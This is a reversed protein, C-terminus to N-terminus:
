NEGESTSPLDFGQSRVKKKVDALVKRGIGSIKLLGEDGETEFIKLLHGVQTIGEDALIQTYRKGLDLEAVALDASPRGETRDRAEAKRQDRVQLRKMFRDVQGETDVIRQQGTYFPHCNSCIDVRREPVTSGVTWVTGCALCVVKADPYWKPHIKERV